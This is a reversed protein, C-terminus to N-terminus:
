NNPTNSPPHIFVFDEVKLIIQKCNEQIILRKERLYETDGPKWDVVKAAFRFRKQRINEKFYSGEKLETVPIKALQM